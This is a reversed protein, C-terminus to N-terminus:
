SRSSGVPEGDVEADESLRRTRFAIEPDLAAEPSWFHGEPGLLMEPNQLLVVTGYSGLIELNVLRVCRTGDKLSQLPYSSSAFSSVSSSLKLDFLYIPLDGLTWGAEPNRSSLRYLRRDCGRVCCPFRCLSGGSLGNCGKRARSSCALGTSDLMLIRLKPRRTKSFRSMRRIRLRALIRGRLIEPDQGMCEEVRNTSGSIRLFLLSFDPRPILLLM